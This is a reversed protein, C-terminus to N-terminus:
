GALRDLWETFSQEDLWGTHVVTGSGDVMVFTSQERVGFKRWVAGSRDDLHPLGGVKFDSVFDRMAAPDNDLGAVGLLQVRGAYRRSAEQVSEAQGACTACWPAWFWLVAPRGALRTADYPKGDLTTGAFQLAASVGGAAPAGGGGPVPDAGGEGGRAGPLVLLLSAALVATAVAAIVLGTGGLRGRLAPLRVQPATAPARDDAAGAPEVAPTPPVPAAESSAAPTPSAPAAPETPM